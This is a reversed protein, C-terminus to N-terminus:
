GGSRSETNVRQIKAGLRALLEELGVYGREMHDLGQLETHHEAVLGALILAASARLDSAVVPAGRLQDVGRIVVGAGERTIQAGMRSLESVHMFREPYIHETLLSVGRSVAMLAMMQAQLDTPFGPFPLTTVDVAKLSGKSRVRLAGDLKEVRAGAATLKDIVAGLHEARAGEITVDGGVMATAIMLTGAEIRDPIIRYQTGRLQRVGQIRIVPSGQGQLRAGMTALCDALDVVEPECAANEIITEGDALSAAMMVNDTALVSSGFAGALHVQAGRLGSASAVIYGHEIQLSAGLAQLGKLHLDIPRAGIVCGGPMSVQAKGQKALLPGLVCISARMRNVLEYAAMVGTSGAPDITLQDKSLAVRVGLGRLIEIMTLVDTVPPVNTITSPEDTLLCAAMIPLVANKAGHVRVTGRLPGSREIILRDM